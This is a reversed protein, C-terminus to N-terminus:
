GGPESALYPVSHVFDSQTIFPFYRLHVIVDLEKVPVSSCAM